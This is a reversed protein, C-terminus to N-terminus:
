VKCQEEKHLAKSIIYFMGISVCVGLAPVFPNINVKTLPAMVHSITSIMVQVKNIVRIFSPVSTMITNVIDRIPLLFLAGISVAWVSGIILSV